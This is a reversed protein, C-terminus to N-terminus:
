IVGWRAVGLNELDISQFKEATFTPDQVSQMTLSFLYSLM